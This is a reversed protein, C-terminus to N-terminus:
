SSQGWFEKYLLYNETDYTAFFIEELTSRKWLWSAMVSKVLKAAERKPFGYIGTSICSFAMTKCHKEEALRLSERYCSELLDMERFYGGRWIPGVAHIVFRARLRAGGTIVAKGPPCSGIKRILAQCEELLEPGAAKHIAGDVGGGGSLSSNAANVIADVAFTTIDKNIVTFRM